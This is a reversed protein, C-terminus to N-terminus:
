CGVGLRVWELIDELSDAMYQPQESPRVLDPILIPTLGARSAALLGTPSDELAACAEPALGLRDVALLYLDPAPKGAPVEDVTCLAVFRRVLPGLSRLAKDRGSNTAVAAPIRAAELADLLAELGPKRPVGTTAAVAEWRRAVEAHIAAVLVADGFHAQLREENERARRGILEAHLADPFVGGREGVVSRWLERDLRETDLMLGDMDFVFAAPLRQPL